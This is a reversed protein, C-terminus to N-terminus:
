SVIKWKKRLYSEVSEREEESLARGFIIIEAIDGNYYALPNPDPGISGITALNYSVLADAPNNRAGSLETLFQSVGNLYYYKATYDFVYSHLVPKKPLYAPVVIDYDNDYQAFTATTDFRYGLILMRNTDYDKGGIFYNNSQNSGRQEVVFVTYDSGVIATGNFNLAANGDFHVCPLNNICSTIYKPLHNTDSQTPNNKIASTPNIDRWLSINAGNQTENESFSEESAADVWMVVGEISSVDSSATLSRATLLQFAEVLRSSQTIGAVIIGIILIVVSLEILSFAKKSRNLQNM